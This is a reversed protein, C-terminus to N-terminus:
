HKAVTPDVILVTINKASLPGYTEQSLEPLYSLGNAAVFAALGEVNFEGKFQIVDGDRHAVFKKTDFTKIWFM